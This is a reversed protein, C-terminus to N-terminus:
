LISVTIEKTREDASIVLEGLTAVELHVVRMFPRSTDTWAIGASPRCWYPIFDVEKRLNHKRMLDEQRRISDDRQNDSM